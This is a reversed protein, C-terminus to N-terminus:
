PADWYAAANGFDPYGNDVLWAKCEAIASKEHRELDGWPLRRGASVSLSRETSTFRVADGDLVRFVLVDNRDYDRSVTFRPEASVHASRDYFAAKYFIRARRRGNDDVLDSWMSHDTARKTWGRPLTVSTFIADGEVQSGIVIGMAKWKDVDGILGNTPLASANVLEQQGRAEMREIAGSPGGSLAEILTLTPDQTATNTIRKTMEDTRKATPRTVTAAVAATHTAPHTPGPAHPVSEGRAMREYAGLIPLDRSARADREERRDRASRLEDATEEKLKDLDKL